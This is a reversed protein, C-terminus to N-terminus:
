PAEMGHTIFSLLMATLAATDTSLEVGAPVIRFRGAMCMTQSMAGLSFNLRWFLDNRPLHPLADALTEFLLTFLPGMRAMFTNRITDDPEALARGVLRIFAEAGPDSERFTMTPEIFACLVARVEPRIGAAAATQRVEALNQRRLENLPILRRDFVAELLAEKSGFHYNVAALNVGAAGTLQRVSVPHFGVTAFLQEAVDLLRTKTDSPNM